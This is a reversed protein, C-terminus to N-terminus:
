DHIALDFVNSPRLSNLRLILEPIELTDVLYVSTQMWQPQTIVWHTIVM